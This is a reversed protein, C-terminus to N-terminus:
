FLWSPSLPGLPFLIYGLNQDSQAFASTSRFRRQACMGSPVCESSYMSEVSDLPEALPCYLGYVQRTRQDPGDSNTYPRYTPLGEQQVNRLSPGVAVSKQCSTEQRVQLMVLYKLINKDARGNEAKKRNRPTPHPRPPPPPPRSSIVSINNVPGNLRLELLTGFVCKGHHPKNILYVYLCPCLTDTIQFWQRALM